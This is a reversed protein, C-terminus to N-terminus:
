QKTALQSPDEQDEEATSAVSLDTANSSEAIWEWVRRGKGNSFARVEGCAVLRNFVTTV